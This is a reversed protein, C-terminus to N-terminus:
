KKNIECQKEHLGVPAEYDNKEIIILTLLIKEDEVTYHASEVSVHHPDLSIETKLIHKFCNNIDIKAVVDDPAKNQAYSFTTAFFAISLIFIIKM